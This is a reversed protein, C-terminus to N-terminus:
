KQLNVSDSATTKSSHQVRESGRSGPHFSRSSRISRCARCPRTPRRRILGFILSRVGYGTGRVASRQSPTRTTASARAEGGRPLAAARARRPGRGEPRGLRRRRGGRERVGGARARGRPPGAGLRLMRNDSSFFVAVAYSRFAQYSTTSSCQSTVIPYNYGRRAGGRARRRPAPPLAARAQPLGTRIYSPASDNVVAM